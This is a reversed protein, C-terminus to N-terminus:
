GTFEDHSIAILVIGILSLLAGIFFGVSLIGFVGGIVAFWLGRRGMASFSGAVAIVGFLAFLGSCCTASWSDVYQNSALGALLVLGWFIGLVGAILVLIGGIVPLESEGVYREESFADYTPEPRSCYDCMSAYVSMPRGCIPCARTAAYPAAAPGTEVPVAPRAKETRLLEKGCKTCSLQFDQGDAGCLPCKASRLADPLQRGCANCFSAGSPNSAGCSPCYM